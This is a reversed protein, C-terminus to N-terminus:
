SIDGKEGGAEDETQKLKMLEVQTNAAMASDLLAFERLVKEEKNRVEGVIEIEVRCRNMGIDTVTFQFEYKTAYLRVIFGIKGKENDSFTGKGNQLEKIDNIADLVYNRPQFYVRSGMM